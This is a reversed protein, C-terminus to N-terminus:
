LQALVVSDGALCTGCFNRFVNGWRVLRLEFVIVDCAHPVPKRFSVVECNRADWSNGQESRFAARSGGATRDRGTEARRPRRTQPGLLLGLSTRGVPSVQQRFSNLATVFRGGYEM